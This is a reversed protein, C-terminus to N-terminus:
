NQCKEGVRPTVDCKRAQFFTARIKTETSKKLGRLDSINTEAFILENQVNQNEVKQGGGGWKLFVPM